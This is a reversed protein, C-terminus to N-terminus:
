RSAGFAATLDSRELTGAAGEHDLGVFVGTVRGADGGTERFTNGDVSITYALDGDLWRANSDMHTLETFDANGRMTGLNVGIEADGSVASGRSWGLLLGTWTATATLTANNRLATEPQLGYAWSEAYGNRWVSGFAVHQGHGVLHQGESNWEGLSNFAAGLELEGYLARLAERDLPYLLSLPQQQNQRFDYIGSGGEQISDYTEAVHDADYFGLAHLLEHALLITGFRESFHANSARNMQIYTTRVRNGSFNNWTTGGADSYFQGIPVFEIHITNTLEEGSTFYYGDGRITHRLSFSSLSPGINMKAWEPLAANVLQVAAHVRDAEEPTNGGILRVTPAVSYRRAVTGGADEMFAVLTGRTNGDELTGRHINFDQIQDVKPVTAIASMDQDIGVALYRGNGYVPM